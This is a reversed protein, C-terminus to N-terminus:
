SFDQFLYSALGQHDYNNAVCKSIACNKIIRDHVKLSWERSNKKIIFKLKLYMFPYCFWQIDIATATNEKIGNFTFFM